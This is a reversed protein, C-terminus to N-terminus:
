VNTISLIVMNDETKKYSLKYRLTRATMLFTFLNLVAKRSSIEVMEFFACAEKETPRSESMFVKKFEPYLLKYEQYADMSLIFDVKHYKRVFRIYRVIDSKIEDEPVIYVHSRHM